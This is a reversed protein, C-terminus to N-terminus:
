RVSDSVQSQNVQSNPGSHFALIRSHTPLLFVLGIFWYIHHLIHLGGCAFFKLIQYDATMCYARDESLEQFFVPNLHCIDFFVPSVPCFGFLCSKVPCFIFICSKCSVQCGQSYEYVQNMDVVLSVCTFVTADNEIAIKCVNSTSSKSKPRLIPNKQVSILRGKKTWFNELIESFKQHFIRNKM